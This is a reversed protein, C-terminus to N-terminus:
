EEAERSANCFKKANALAMLASLALICLGCVSCITITKVWPIFVYAYINFMFFFSQVQNSVTLFLVVAVGFVALFVYLIQLTFIKTFTRKGMGLLNMTKHEKMSQKLALVIAVLVCITSLIVVVGIYANFLKMPFEMQSLLIDYAGIPSADAIYNASYHARIIAVIEGAQRVDKIHFLVRTLNRLGQKEALVQRSTLGMNADSQLTDVFGAIEFTAEGGTFLGKQLTIKDGIKYGNIYLFKANLLIYDGGSAIKELAGDGIINEKGYIYIIDDVDLGITQYLIMNTGKISADEVFSAKYVKDAVKEGNIELSAVYDAISENGDGINIVQMNYINIDSREMCLQESSTLMTVLFVVLFLSFVLVRPIVTLNKSRFSNKVYIFAFDKKKFLRAILKIIFNLAYPLLFMAGAVACVIIVPSMWVTQGKKQFISGFIYVLLLVCGMIINALDTKKSNVNTSIMTQRISKHLSVIAPIASTIISVSAGFLFSLGYYKFGIGYFIPEWYFNPALLMAFYGIVIGISSAIFGYILSEFMLCFFLGGNSAGLSKMTSFQKVRESFVLQMTLYIIYVCYIIVGATCVSFPVKNIRIMEQTQDYQTPDSIEFSPYAERLREVAWSNLSEDKMQVVCINFLTDCPFGVIANMTEKSIIISGNEKAKFLIGTDRAIGAVKFQYKSGGYGVVINGGVKIGYKQAVYNGIVAEGYGLGSSGVNGDLLTLGADYKLIDSYKGALFYAAMSLRGEKVVSNGDITGQAAFASAVYEANDRVDSPFESLKGFLVYSNTSNTINITHDLHMEAYNDFIRTVVISSFFMLVAGALCLIILPIRAKNSKMNAKVYKLLIGM